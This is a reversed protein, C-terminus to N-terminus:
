IWIRVTKKYDLYSQGFERELYAEERKVVFFYILMMTPLFLFLAGYSRLAIAIGLYIFAFGLYMPNRTRTYIGEAVFKEIPLWPKPDNGASRFVKNASYLLVGGSVILLMGIMFALPPFAHFRVGILPDLAFGILLMGLYILPPPFRVGASDEAKKNETDAM